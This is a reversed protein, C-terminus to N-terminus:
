ATWCSVGQNIFVAFLPRLYGCGFACWDLFAGSLTFAGRPTVVGVHIRVESGILTDLQSMLGTSDGQSCQTPLVFSPAQNGAFGLKTFASGTDIVVAPWPGLGGVLPDCL